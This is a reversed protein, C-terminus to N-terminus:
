THADTCAYPHTPSDAFSVRAQTVTYTIRLCCTGFDPTSHVRDCSKLGGRRKLGRRVCILIHLDISLVIYLLPGFTWFVRKLGALAPSAVMVIHPKKRRHLFAGSVATDRRLYVDSVSLSGDV